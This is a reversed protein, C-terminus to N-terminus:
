TTPRHWSPFPAPSLTSRIKCWSYVGVFLAVLATLRDTPLVLCGGAALRYNWAFGQRILAEGRVEKTEGTEGNEFRYRTQADIAQPYVVFREQVAGALRIALLYGNGSEPQDFQRV